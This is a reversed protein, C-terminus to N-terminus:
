REIRVSEENYLPFEPPPSNLPSPSSIPMVVKLASADAKLVALDTTISGGILECQVAYDGFEYLSYGYTEDKKGSAAPTGESGYLYCYIEKATKGGNATAQM